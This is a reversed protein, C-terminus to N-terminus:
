RRWVIHGYKTTMKTGDFEWKWMFFEEGVFELLAGAQVWPSVTQWFVEEYDSYGGAYRCCELAWQGDETERLNAEWGIANICHKLLEADLRDKAPVDPPCKLGGGVHDGIISAMSVDSSRGFPSQSSPDIHQQVLAEHASACDKILIIPDEVAMFSVNYGM